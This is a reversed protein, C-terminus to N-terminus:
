EKKRIIDKVVKIYNQILEEKMEPDPLFRIIQLDDMINESLFYLLLHDHPTRYSGGIDDNINKKNIGTMQEIKVLREWWNDIDKSTVEKKDITSVLDCQDKIVASPVDKYIEKMKDVRKQFDKKPTIGYIRCNYPRVTHIPCMKTERNFFVCGKTTNGRTYNLLSKEIVDCIEEVEWKKLMESLLLLFESYLLQPSQYKCCWGGCSDQKKNIHKMCGETDPISDYLNNLNKFVRKKKKFTSLRIKKYFGFISM